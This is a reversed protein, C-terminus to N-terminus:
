YWMVVIFWSYSFDYCLDFSFGTNCQACLCFASGTCHLAHITTAILARASSQFCHGYNKEVRRMTEQSSYLRKISVNWAELCFRVGSQICLRPVMGKFFNPLPDPLYTPVSTGQAGLICARMIANVYAIFSFVLQLVSFSISFLHTQWHSLKNSCLQARM